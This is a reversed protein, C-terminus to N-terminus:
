NILKSTSSPGLQDTNLPNLANTAFYNNDLYNSTLLNSALLQTDTGNTNLNSNNNNNSNSAINSNNNTLFNTYLNSITNPNTTAAAVTPNTNTSIPGMNLLDANSNSNNNHHYDISNTIHHHNFNNTNHDHVNANPINSNNTNLTTTATTLSTSENNPRKFFNHQLSEHPTIRIKPEYNLMRMIIDEFKLYDQLSHGPENLRRSQPGGTESGLIDRLRRTGPNKYKKGEKIRKIQWTGDPYRDFYRKSKSGQELMQLPPIGLVEVIKNMQDFENHGNFLPEGTHMEVLICGLSWMDIAM